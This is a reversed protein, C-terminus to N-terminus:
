DRQVSAFTGSEHTQRQADHRVKQGRGIFSRDNFYHPHCFMYFGCEPDFITDPHKNALSANKLTQRIFERPHDDLLFEKFISTRFCASDVWSHTDVSFQYEPHTSEIPFKMNYREPVREIDTVAVDYDTMCHNLMGRVGRKDHVNDAGIYFFAGVERKVLEDVALAFCDRLLVPQLLPLAVEVVHDPPPESLEGDSVILIIDAAGKLWDMLEYGWKM